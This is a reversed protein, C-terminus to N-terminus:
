RGPSASLLDDIAARSLVSKSIFGTAPSTELLEELDAESYASILIVQTIEALLTRAVDVGNEPGLDVDVLALAPRLERALALAAAGTSALGVIDLGERELFDRAAALFEHNDDVILCRLSGLNAAHLAV